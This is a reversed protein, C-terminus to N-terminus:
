FFDEYKKLDDYKKYSKMEKYKEEYKPSIYLFFYKTKNTITEEKLTDLYDDFTINLNVFISDNTTEFSIIKKNKNKVIRDLLDKENKFFTQKVCLINRNRINYKLKSDDLSEKQIFTHCLLKYIKLLCLYKFESNNTQNYDNILIKYNNIYNAMTIYNYKITTNQEFFMQYILMQEKQTIQKIM